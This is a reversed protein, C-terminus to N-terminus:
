FIHITASKCKFNAVNSTTSNVTVYSTLCGLTATLNVIDAHGINTVDVVLDLTEGADLKGNGSVGDDITFTTHDLVPANLLVNVTSNWTNGLNDTM